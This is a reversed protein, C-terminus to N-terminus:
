CHRFSRILSLKGASQSDSAYWYDITLRIIKLSDKMLYPTAHVCNLFLCSLYIQGRLCCGHVLDM